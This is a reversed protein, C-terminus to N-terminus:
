KSNRSAVGNNRILDSLISILFRNDETPNDLICALKLAIDSVSTMKSNQIQVTLENVIADKSQLERRMNNTIIRYDDLLVSQEVMVKFLSSAVPSVSKEPILAPVVHNITTSMKAIFKESREKHFFSLTESLDNMKRVTTTATSILCSQVKSVVALEAQAEQLRNHKVISEVPIASTSPTQPATTLRIPKSSTIVKALRSAATVEM